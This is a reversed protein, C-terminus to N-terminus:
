LASRGAEGAPVASAGTVTESLASAASVQDQLRDSVVMGDRMRVVRRAYAAIDDEHTVLVVTLGQRNLTQFLNMVEASVQSDLNGTPEDALILSPRTVLARAVAVRQQQGGSLQSPQHDLRQGLGVQELAVRARMARDAAPIGAYILPLEVNKLATTRRLLNFSQFVFGIMRNRVVAQEDDRLTAVDQGQLYYKGSSPRDLCGIINMMTSKGSGSAGMIAVFEGTSIQLDVGRLAHVMQDGMVYTKTLQQIDMLPRAPENM